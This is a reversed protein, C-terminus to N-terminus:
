ASRSRSRAARSDSPRQPLHQPPGTRGDNVAVTELRVDGRRQDLRGARPEDPVQVFVHPLRGSVAADAADAPARAGVHDDRVGLAHQRSAATTNPGRPAARAADVVGDIAADERRFTRREVQGASTPGPEPRRAPASRDPRSRRASSPARPRERHSRAAECRADRHAGVDDAARDVLGGAALPRAASSRAAPARRAAERVRDAEGPVDVVHGAASRESSMTTWALVSGSGNPMTIASPCPRAARPPPPARRRRPRATRRDPSRPRSCRRAVGGLEGRPEVLQDHIRRPRSAIAALARPGRRDVPERGLAHRPRKSLHVGSSRSRATRRRRGATRRCPGCTAPPRCEARQDRDAVDVPDDAGVQGVPERVQDEVGAREPEVGRLEALRLRSPLM